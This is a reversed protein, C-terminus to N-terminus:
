VEISAVALQDVAVVHSLSLSGSQCLASPEMRDKAFQRPLLRRDMLLHYERNRKKEGRSLIENVRPRQWGKQGAVTAESATDRRTERGKRAEQNLLSEKVGYGSQATARLESFLPMSVSLSLLALIGKIVKYGGGFPQHRASAGRRAPNGDAAARVSPQKDAGCDGLTGIKEAGGDAKAGQEVHRPIM